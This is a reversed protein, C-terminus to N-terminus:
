FEPQDLIYTYNFRYNGYICVNNRQQVNRDASSICVSTQSIADWVCVFCVDAM